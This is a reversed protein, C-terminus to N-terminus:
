APAFEGPATLRVETGVVDTAVVQAGVAPDVSQAVTRVGEASEAVVITTLSGDRGAVATAGVVTAAGVLDADVPRTATAARAAETVDLTAYPASPAETSWLVAAPKTLLGSVATTLGVGPEDAARLHRVMAAAGQLSYNNFPGGGFTMGGTLTLARHHSIGLERAQVEVAVPFCSYLDVPAGALDEQSMGVHGRLSDGCVAMAPWRFLEAREPMPVVLNSMAVGLPFVWQSEDIGLRRAVEVSTVVLAAAQDVNWQSVLWKPYPAAILRNTDSVVAIDDAHLARQDWGAPADAAISAFGAWLEGLWRQHEDVTRGLEHRLASEIVAYQHAATTLNREIEIPSIVMEHPQIQEDPEQALAELPAEPVERGEKGAVVGSWRNEGGAVVAAQVEGDAVATCARALLSLQLVGLESRVSRAGNAGLAGAVARGPDPETWTGHPVLVEGVLPGLADAAGTPALAADVAELILATASTPEFGAGARHVVEAAGVVVPTRGDVHDFRSM